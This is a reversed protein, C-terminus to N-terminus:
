EPMPLLPVFIDKAERVVDSSFAPLWQEDLRNKIPGLREIWTEPTMATQARNIADRLAISYAFALPSNLNITGLPCIPCRGYSVCLKEKVSYPSSYPDLCSWGPTACLLDESENCNRKDLLGVSERWRERQEIILGIRGYQRQKEGDSTYHDVTTQATKHNAQTQVAKVDGEWLEFTLDLVTKRIMNITFYELGHDARFMKLMGNWLNHDRGNFSTVKGDLLKTFIFLRKKDDHHAGSRLRESWRLLFAFLTGPNDVEGDDPLFVPQSKQARGKYADAVFFRGLLESYGYDDINSNCLTSSNYALGIAMLLVFPVIARGTPNFLRTLNTRPSFGARILAARLRYSMAKGFLIPSEKCEYDVYALLLERSWGKDADKRNKSQVGSRFPPLESLPVLHDRYKELIVQTENFERITTSIEKICALRIRIILDKEIVPLPTARRDAGPWRGAPVYLNEPLLNKWRESIQLIRVCEAFTGYANRRTTERWRAKGEKVQADLWEQYHELLSKTIDNLTMESFCNSLFEFAHKLIYNSADATKYNPKPGVLSMFAEAFPDVLHPVALMYTIKIKLSFGKHLVAPFVVHVQPTGDNEISSEIHPDNRKVRASEIHVVDAGATNIKEKVFNTPRREKKIGV